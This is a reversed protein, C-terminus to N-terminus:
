LLSGLFSGHRASNFDIIAKSHAMAREPSTNEQTHTDTFIYIHTNPFSYLIINKFSFPIKAKKRNDSNVKTKNFCM